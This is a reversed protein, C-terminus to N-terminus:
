GKYVGKCRINPSTNLLTNGPVFGGKKTTFGGVLYKEWLRPFKAGLNGGMIDGLAELLIGSALIVMKFTGFLLRISLSSNGLGGYDKSIYPRM